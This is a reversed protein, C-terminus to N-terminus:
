NQNEFNRYKVRIDPIALLDKNENKKRKLSNFNSNRKRHNDNIELNIFYQNLMPSTFDEIEVMQSSILPRKGLKPIREKRHIQNKASLKEKSSKKKNSKKKLSLQYLQILAFKESCNPCKYKKNTFKKKARKHSRSEEISLMSLKISALPFMLKEYLLCGCEWNLVFSNTGDLVKNTLPCLLPFDSNRMSNFIIEIERLDEESKIHRFNPPLIDEQLVGIIIEKNFLYGKKCMMIPKRLIQKTLACYKLRQSFMSQNKKEAILPFYRESSIRIRFYNPDSEM